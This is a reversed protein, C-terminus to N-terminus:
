EAHTWQRPPCTLRSPTNERTAELALAAPADLPTQWRGDPDLALNQSAPATLRLTADLSCEGVVTLPGGDGPEVRAICIFPEGAALARHYATMADVEPETPSLFGPGVMMDHVVERLEAPPLEAFAEGYFSGQPGHCRACAQEFTSVPALDLPVVAAALDALTVAAPVPAAPPEDRGCGGLLVAAALALLCAPRSM